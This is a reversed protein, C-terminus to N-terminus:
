AAIAREWLFVATHGRKERAEISQRILRRPRSDAPPSDPKAGPTRVAPHLISKIRHCTLQLSGGDETRYMSRVTCM